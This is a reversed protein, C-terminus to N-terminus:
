SFERKLLKMNLLFTENNGYSNKKNLKLDLIILQPRNPGPKFLAIEEGEVLSLIEKLNAVNVEVPHVLGATIEQFSPYAQVNGESFLLTNGSATLVDLRNKVQDGGSFYEDNVLQQLTEVEPELFSLTELHKDIYFHDSNKYHEQVALNVAQKSEQNYALQQTHHLTQELEEVARKKTIFNAAVFVLPLLGAIMLYLILRTKPIHSLM